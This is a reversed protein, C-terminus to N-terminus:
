VCSRLQVFTTAAKDIRADLESKPSNRNDVTSGLYRFIEVSQLVAGNITIQPASSPGQSLM